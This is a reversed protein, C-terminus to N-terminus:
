RREHRTLTAAASHLHARLVGPGDRELRAILAAHDEALGAATFHPKLQLLFLRM